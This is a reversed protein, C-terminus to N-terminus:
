PLETQVDSLFSDLTDGNNQESEVYQLLALGHLLSSNYNFQHKFNSTNRKDVTILGHENTIINNFKIIDSFKICFRPADADAEMVIIALRNTTMKSSAFALEFFADSKDHLSVENFIVQVSNVNRFLIILIAILCKLNIM